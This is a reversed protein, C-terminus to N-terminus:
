TTTVGLGCYLADLLKGSRPDDYGGAGPRWKNPIYAVALAHGPDAFAITGGAGPHGFSGPYRLWNSTGPSPVVFGLGWIPPGPSLAEMGSLLPVSLDPELFRDLTAHSFLPPGDIGITAAYARALGRANAWGGSPDEVEWPRPHPPSVRPPPFGIRAVIDALEGQFTPSPPAAHIPLAINPLQEQPLRIWAKLDRPAGIEEDFFQGPRRGDIRRVVEGVLHGFTGAHYGYRTGPEWMPKQRALAEVFGDWGEFDEPPVPQDLGIVGAAHSLLWRVPINAKGAQAFEPWYRAVRADVDLLGRDVLVAACMTTLGKVASAIMGVTDGTWPTNEHAVAVGGWVDVVVQGDHVACFAAGVEEHEDFNSRFADAVAEFGPSV